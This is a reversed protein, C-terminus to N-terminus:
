AIHLNWLINFHFETPVAMSTCKRNLSSMRKNSELYKRQLGTCGLNENLLGTIAGSKSLALM